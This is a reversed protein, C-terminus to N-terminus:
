RPAPMGWRAASKERLDGFNVFNSRPAGKKDNQKKAENEAGNQSIQPETKLGLVAGFDTFIARKPRGSDTSKKQM